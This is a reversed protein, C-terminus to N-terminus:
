HVNVSKAQVWDKWGEIGEWYQWLFGFKDLTNRGEICPFAGADPYMANRVSIKGRALLRPHIKGL